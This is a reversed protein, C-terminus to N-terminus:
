ATERHSAAILQTAPAKWDHCETVPHWNEEWWSLEHALADPDRSPFISGNEHPRILDKGGVRNSVICPLGCNLAQPIVLGFGEELSPLVLVSANRFGEALAPQSVSGHHTLPTPGRYAVLDPEAEPAIGGYFHMEWDPRNARELAKLLTQLDKRLGIQGAFLIRFPPPTKRDRSHFIEPDAGYGALWIRESPIGLAILQDRVVTSAACHFDALEYERAERAFYPDDYHCVDALRLGVRQYEPEMIRVWERVPGTAHNLVTRVGLKRAREFGRLAQGPMAHLFDCPELRKGVWADFGHDQWLFLSRSAPRLSPPLFKLAGYVMTTRLSHTRVPLGPPAALKWAPYGSYYCDLAAARHLELALPFLHCPNTAAISIKMPDERIRRDM